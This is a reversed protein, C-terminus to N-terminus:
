RGCLRLPFLAWQKRFNTNYTQHKIEHEEEQIGSFETYLRSPNTRAVSGSQFCHNRLSFDTGLM